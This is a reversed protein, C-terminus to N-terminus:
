LAHVRKFLKCFILSKILLIAKTIILLVANKINLLFPYYCLYSFIINVEALLIKENQKLSCANSVAQILDRSRGYNSVTVTCTAPVVSGDCSFVTVTMTRPTASQLPLSLYM